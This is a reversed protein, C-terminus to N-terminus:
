STPLMCACAAAATMPQRSARSTANARANAAKANARAPRCSPGPTITKGTKRTPKRTRRLCTTRVGVESRSSRARATDASYAGDRSACSARHRVQRRGQRGQAGDPRSDTATPPPCPACRKAAHARRGRALARPLSAASTSWIASRTAVGFPPQTAVTSVLVRDIACWRRLALTSPRAREGPRSVRDLAATLSM